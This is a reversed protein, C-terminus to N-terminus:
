VDPLAANWLLGHVPEPISVCWRVQPLALLGLISPTLFCKSNGHQPSLTFSKLLCIPTHAALSHYAFSALM